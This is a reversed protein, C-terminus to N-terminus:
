NRAELTRAFADTVRRMAAAPHELIPGHGVALRTPARAVLKQASQLATPKHWTALHPLPFLWRMQGSVALGGQTAFADGAILTGDRTDLYAMHGPTHGPSAIAELSGIREGESLLTTPQTKTPTVSGRVKAQPENTELGTDGRLLRVERAGILVEADPYREHLSDLGGVHDGHAHTLLIRQVPKGLKAVAAEILRATGELGTDVITLGDTELVLYGNILGYHVIRYLYPGAPKLTM